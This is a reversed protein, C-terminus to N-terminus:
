SHSKETAPTKPTKPPSGFAAASKQMQDDFQQQMQRQMHDLFAQNQQMMSQNYAVQADFAKQVKAQGQNLADQTENMGQEVQSRLRDGDQDIHQQKKEMQTQMAALQQNFALFASRMMWEHALYFIGAGLGLLLVVSQWSRESLNLGFWRQKM